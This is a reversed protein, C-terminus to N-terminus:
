TGPVRMTWTRFSSRRFEFEPNSRYTSYGNLSNYLDLLVPPSMEGENVLLTGVVKLDIVYLQTM